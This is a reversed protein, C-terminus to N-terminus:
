TCEGNELVSKPIRIQRGFRMVPIEGKRVLDYVFNKSLGVAARFEEPTLLSPLDEIPTKRTIKMRLLEWSLAACDGRDIGSRNKIGGNRYPM